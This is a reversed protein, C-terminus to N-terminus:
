SQWDLNRYQRVSVLFLGLAPLIIAMLMPIKGDRALSVMSFFVIYYGILFLIGRASSNKGRSRNAKIGLTFGLFTLLLVLLPNNFRNWYEYTANFFDKKRYGKKKLGELGLDLFDSLEKHNMMIEKTSLSTSFKKESIPLSYKKFLIKDVKENDESSDIINGDELVLNFSEIGTKENKEHIIQGSSAKIVKEKKLQPDYIHLYVNSLEKTIDDVKEPFLTINNIKTFFQGTKIGEILSASSIMKIKKRLNRHANPVLDQNLFFLNLSMISGIVIFPILIHKKQLGFSRLAIYESDGSLKNLCFITSFFISLPVAMPILTVAVDGMMGLIFGFTIDNSSMLQM